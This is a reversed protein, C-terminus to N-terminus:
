SQFIQVIIKDGTIFCFHSLHIICCYAYWNKILHAEDIVFSSIRQQYLDSKIISRWTSGRSYLSEPSIFVLQFEGEIFRERSCSVDGVYASSIGMERFRLTQDMMFAKLPCVVLAISTGSPLGRLSDFLLPLCGYIISKGYGTPLAVFTDRNSIFHLIAEKQMEKLAFGLKSAIIHVLEELAVGAMARLVRAISKRPLLM